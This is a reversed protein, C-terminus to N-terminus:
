LNFNDTARRSTAISEGFGLAVDRITDSFAASMTNNYWRGADSGMVEIYKRLDQEPVDRYTYLMAVRLSQHMPERIQARVTEVQANLANIDLDAAAPGTSNVTIGVALMTALYADVSHRTADVARDVEDILALRNAPPPVNELEAAFAEIERSAEQTNSTKELQTIRRGEPSRLWQLVTEAHDQDWNSEIIELAHHELKEGAFNKEVSSIMEDMTERPIPVPAEEISDIMQAEMSWLQSKVGSIEYLEKLEPPRDTAEALTVQAALSAICAVFTSILFQPNAIFKSRM